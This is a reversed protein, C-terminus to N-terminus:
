GRSMRQFEIRAIHLEWANKLEGPESCSTEIILGDTHAISVEKGPFSIPQIIIVAFDTLSGPYPLWPVNAKREETERKLPKVRHLIELCLRQREVEADRISSRIRAGEKQEKRKTCKVYKLEPNALEQPM